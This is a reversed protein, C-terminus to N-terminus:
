QVYSMCSVACAIEGYQQRIQTQNQTSATSVLVEYLDDIFRPHLTKELAVPSITFPVDKIHLLIGSNASLQKLKEMGSEYVKKQNTKLFKGDSLKKYLLLIKEKNM